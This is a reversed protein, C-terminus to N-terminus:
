PPATIASDRTQDLGQDLSEDRIRVISLISWRRTSM